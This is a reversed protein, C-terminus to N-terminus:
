QVIFCCFYVVAILGYNVLVRVNDQYPRVIVGVIALGLGCACGYLGSYKTVSTNIFAVLCYGFVLVISGWVSAFIYFYPGKGLLM